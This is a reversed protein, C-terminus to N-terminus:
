GNQEGRMYAGCNPCYNSKVDQINGCSSCREYVWAGYPPQCDFVVCNMRDRDYVLYRLEDSYYARYTNGVRLSKVNFVTDCAQALNYAEQASMGLAGFLNSFFQGSKVKGERMELSDPCFGLANSLTDSAETVPETLEQQSSRACSVFFVLALASILSAFYRM